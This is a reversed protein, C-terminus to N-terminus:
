NYDFMLVADVCRDFLVCGFDVFFGGGLNGFFGYKLQLPRVAKTRKLTIKSEWTRNRILEKKAMLINVQVAHNDMDILNCVLTLLLASGITLMVFAVVYWSYLLYGIKSPSCKVCVWLLMVITSFIFTLLLYIFSQMVSEISNLVLRYEIHFKCIKSAQRCFLIPITILKNWRDAAIVGIVILSSGTRFGEVSASIMIFARIICSDIISWNSRYKPDELFEELIFYFPDREILVFAIPAALVSIALLPGLALRVLTGFDLKGELLQPKM